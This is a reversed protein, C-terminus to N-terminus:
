RAFQITVARSTSPAPKGVSGRRRPREHKPLPAALIAVQLHLSPLAAVTALLRRDPSSASPQMVHLLDITDQSLIPQDSDSLLCLKIAAAVPGMSGCTSLRALNALSADEPHRTPLTPDLHALAADLFQQYSLRGAHYENACAEFCGTSTPLSKDVPLEFSFKTIALTAPQTPVGRVLQWIKSLISM